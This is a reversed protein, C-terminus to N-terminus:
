VTQRVFGIKHTHTHTHPKGLGGGDEFLQKASGTHLNQTIQMLERCPFSAPQGSTVLADVPQDESLEAPQSFSSPLGCVGQDVSRQTKTLVRVIRKKPFSVLSPPLKKVSPVAESCLVKPCLVESCLVESCLRLVESPISWPTRM